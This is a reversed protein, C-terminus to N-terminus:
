GRGPRCTDVNSWVGEKRVNKISSRIAPTFCVFKLNNYYSVTKGYKLKGVNQIATEM